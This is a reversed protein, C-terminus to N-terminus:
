DRCKSVRIVIKMNMWERVKAQLSTRTTRVWLKRYRRWTEKMILAREVVDAYPPLKLASM